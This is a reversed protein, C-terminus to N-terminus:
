ALSGGVPAGDQKLKVRGTLPIPGGKPWRTAILASKPMWIESVKDGQNGGLVRVKDATEGLYFGVHGGGQRNFVLVAGYCPHSLGQGWTAWSKARIAIAPPKIGAELMCAAAFTGCWPTVESTVAIGLWKAAKRVYGLISPNERPGPIEAVGIQSKAYTVWKPEKM